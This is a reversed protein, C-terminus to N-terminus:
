GAATGPFCWEARHLAAAARPTLLALRSGHGGLVPHLCSPNPIGFGEKFGGGGWRHSGQSSAQDQLSFCARALFSIHEKTLTEM